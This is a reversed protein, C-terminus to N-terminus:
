QKEVLDKVDIEAVLNDATMPTSHKMELAAQVNTGLKAQLQKIRADIDEQPVSPEVNVNLNKSEVKQEIRQVAQGHLRTDLFSVVKLIADAVRTNPKGANDYLPFDLIDRLKKIGYNLGEEMIATYEGPPTLMYAVFSRDRLLYMYFYSPACIGSFIRTMVMPKGRESARFYEKWFQVRCANMVPSPKFKRKELKPMLEWESLGLIEDPVFQLAKHVADPVVNMDLGTFKNEFPALTGEEKDEQYVKM